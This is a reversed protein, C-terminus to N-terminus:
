KVGDVRCRPSRIKKVCDDCVHRTFFCREEYYSELNLMIWDKPLEQQSRTRGVTGCLDCTWEVKLKQSM